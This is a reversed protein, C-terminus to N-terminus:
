TLNNPCVTKHVSAIQLFQFGWESTAHSSLAALRQELAERQTPALSEGSQANPPRQLAQTHLPTKTAESNGLRSRRLNGHRLPPPGCQAGLGDFVEKIEQRAETMVNESRSSTSRIWLIRCHQQLQTSWSPLQHLIHQPSSQKWTSSSKNSRRTIANQNKYCLHQSLKHM